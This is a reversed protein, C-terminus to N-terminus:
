EALPSVTVKVHDNPSRLAEFTTPLKELPITGTIMRRYSAEKDAAM